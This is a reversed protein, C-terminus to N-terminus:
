YGDLAHRAWEPLGTLAVEVDMGPQLPSLLKAVQVAIRDRSTKDLLGFLPAPGTEAMVGGARDAGDFDLGLPSGSPAFSEAIGPRLCSVQPVWKPKCSYCLIHAM